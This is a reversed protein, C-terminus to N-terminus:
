EEPIREWQDHPVFIPTDVGDRLRLRAGMAFGDIVAEHKQGDYHVFVRSGPGILEDDHEADAALEEVVPEPEAEGALEEVADPEAAPEDLFEAIRDELAAVISKRSGGLRAEEHELMKTFTSRALGPRLGKIQSVAERATLETTDIKLRPM